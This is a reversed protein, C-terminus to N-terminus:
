PAFSVCVPMPISIGGPLRTLRGTVPDVRFSCLSDGGMHACVLWAGDPSLAFNRPHPGGCAVIEVLTLAGTDPAVAFVAISDHGRNSAYAFRGDPRLRIEACLNDGKFDAPLTAIRQFPALTGRDAEYASATITSDLEDIVYFHRGDPSFKAHRPGTGPTFATFPVAAPALAATVPDLTSAYIRDEGLDAVFVFRDDPSVTASHAHSKDQRKPNPGLPGAHQIFSRRPGLRGDPLLPFSSVQGGGYSTAVLAHGASDVAAHCLSAATAETNLLTLHRTAPDVAYARVAGGAVGPAPTTEEIAYLVCGGPHFTLWSPNKLEAVLAPASLAGSAADLRVAYIGRSTSRTYTGVYFDFSAAPMILPCLFFLALRVAALRTQLRRIM